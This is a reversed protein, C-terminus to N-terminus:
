EDDKGGKYGGAKRWVTPFHGKKCIRRYGAAEMRKKARTRAMSRIVSM